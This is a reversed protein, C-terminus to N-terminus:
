NDLRKQVVYFSNDQEVRVLYTNQEAQPRQGSVPPLISHGYPTVHVIHNDMLHPQAKTFAQEVSFDLPSYMFYRM